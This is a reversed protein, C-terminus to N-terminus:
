QTALYKTLVADLQDSLSKNAKIAVMRDQLEKGPMFPTWAGTFKAIENQLDKIETLKVFVKRLYEVREQPVDPPLAVASGTSDVFDFPGQIEKPVKVGLEYMTPLDPNATSRKESLTMLNIVNGDNQDRMAGSESPVIFDLEGRAVALVMDKKGKFGSIVKGDLGLVDLMVAAALALTGKATTGGAKLGKAKRLEDLTKYPSKPSLQFAKGAPYVDAVYNFKETEYRVGPAKLVDNATIADRSKHVLTLGDRTGEVYVNNIGEGSDSNEVKVTAGTEKGLHPAIARALLDANSGPDESVVWNITKGRYFEEPAVSKAAQSCALALTSILTLIAIAAVFRIPSSATVM